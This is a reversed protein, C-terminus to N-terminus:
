AHDGADTPSGEAQQPRKPASGGLANWIGFGVGAGIAAYLVLLGVGHLFGSILGASTWWVYVPIIFWGLQGAFKWVKFIPWRFALPLGFPEETIAIYEWMGLGFGFALVLFLFWYM